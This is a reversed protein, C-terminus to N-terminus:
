ENSKLTYTSLLYILDDLVTFLREEFDLSNSILPRGDFCKKIVPEEIDGYEGFENNVMEFLSSSLWGKHHAYFSIYKEITLINDNEHDEHEWETAKANRFFREEPYLEYLEHAKTAVKFCEREFDDKSQFQHLREKFVELNKLNFLKQEMHDGIWQAQRIENNTEITDITEANEEDQEIWDALIEYQWNLYSDEQRYYPIDAHHYLYSCVSLLLHASQKKHKEKLMLFLPIVPIYYLNSCTNYREESVLFTKTGEQVLQISDWLAVKNKLKQQIDSISLAINYPYEFDQIPVPQIQYHEALRSLSKYFDRETKRSEKDTQVSQEIKLKPLFTTKLFGNPAHKSSSVEKPRKQNRRCRKTTEDMPRVRNVTPPTAKATKRRPASSNGIPYTTAYNM